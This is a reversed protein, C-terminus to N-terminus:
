SRMARTGSPIAFRNPRQRGRFVSRHLCARHNRISSADEAERSAAMGPRNDSFSNRIEPPASFLEKLRSSQAEQAPAFALRGVRTRSCM